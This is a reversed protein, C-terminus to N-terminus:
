GDPSGTKVTIAGDELAADVTSGIYEAQWVYSVAYPDGDALGYWADGLGEGMGEAVDRAIPIEEDELAYVLLEIRLRRARINAQHSMRGM